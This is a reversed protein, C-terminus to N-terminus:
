GQVGVIQKEIPLKRFLVHKTEYPLRFFADEESPAEQACEALLGLPVVVFALLLLGILATVRIDSQTALTWKGDM